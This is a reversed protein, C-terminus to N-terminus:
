RAQWHKLDVIGHDVPDGFTDSEIHQCIVILNACDFRACPVKIAAYEHFAAIEGVIQTQRYEQAKNSFPMKGYTAIDVGLEELYGNETLDLINSLVVPIEYLRYRLKSPFVPQGQKLHYAIESIAGDRELSTYLVDFSGDDWRGLSMSCQTPNRGDRVLRWISTQLTITPKEEMLDLLLPDRNPRTSQVV